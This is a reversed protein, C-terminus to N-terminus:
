YRNIILSGTEYEEMGWMATVLVNGKLDVIEYQATAPGSEGSSMVKFDIYNFGIDLKIEIGHYGYDLTVRKAIVEGNKSVKVIDGDVASYDRYRLIVTSQNTKLEGLDKKGDKNAMSNEILKTTTNYQVNPNVFQESQGGMNIAKKGILPSSDKTEVKWDLASTSSAGSAPPKSGSPLLKGGGGLDQARAPLTVMLAFLAWFAVKTVTRM